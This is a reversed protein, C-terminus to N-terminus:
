LYSVTYHKKITSLIDGILSKKNEEIGLFRNQEKIYEVMEKESSFGKAKTKYKDHLFTSMADMVAYFPYDNGQVLVATYKYQGGKDIESREFGKWEWGRALLRKAM